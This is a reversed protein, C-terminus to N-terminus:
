ASVPCRELPPPFEAHMFKGCPTSTKGPIDGHTPVESPGLEAATAPPPQWSRGAECQETVGGDRCMTRFKQSPGHAGACRAFSGRRGGLRTACLKRSPAGAGVCRASLNRSPHRQTALSSVSLDLITNPLKTYLAECRVTVSRGNARRRPLPRYRSMPHRLFTQLRCAPNYDM